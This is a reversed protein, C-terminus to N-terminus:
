FSETEKILICLFKSGEVKGQTLILGLMNETDLKVSPILGQM